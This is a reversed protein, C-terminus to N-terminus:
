QLSSGVVNLAFRRYFNSTGQMNYAIASRTMVGIAPQFTSQNTIKQMMLPVYPCYIVGSDASTPGKYGVTIYDLLNSAVETSTPQHFTDSFVQIKGDLTGVKTVGGLSGLDHSVASYMFNNLGQLASIAKSSALVFNGAGRRTTIGIQNSEKVVKTYITRLKEQEWQGDAYGATNAQAGIQGYVWNQSAIVNTNIAAVLDRDIEAAIEYQLQQMFEAEADMGHVAKLDQAMELTYEAKMKRTTATITSREMHMRISAMDAGLLEGTATAHSGTYNRLILNYGSENNFVAAVTVSTTAANAFYVAAGVPNNITAGTMSYEILVKKYGDTVETYKVVGIQNASGTNAFVNEGLNVTTASAILIVVSQYQPGSATNARDLPNVGAKLQNTTTGAYSARWAFAFGTPGSMPQVGVLQNAVLQPFVRRVTPILVNTFISVDGSASQNENLWAETNELLRAMTERENTETLPKVSGKDVSLLEDWKEVLFKKNNDM